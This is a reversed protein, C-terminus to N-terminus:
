LQVHSTIPGLFGDRAYRQILKDLLGNSSEVANFYANKALVLDNRFDSANLLIQGDTDTRLHLAPNNHTLAYKKNKITFLHVLGNRLSDYLGDSDYVNKKFYEDIFGIYADRVKNKTTNGWWFSALYDIACAMLIFGVLADRSEVLRDIPGFVWKDFHPRFGDRFWDLSAEQQKDM